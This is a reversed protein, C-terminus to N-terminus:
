RGSLAFQQVLLKRLKRHEGPPLGDVPLILNRRGAAETKFYLIVLRSTVFQREALVLTERNGAVELAWARGSFHLTIPQWHQYLCWAYWGFGLVLVVGLGAAWPQIPAIVLWVIVM